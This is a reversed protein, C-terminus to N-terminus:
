AGYLKISRRVAEDLAKDDASSQETRDRVERAMRENRHEHTEIERKKRM